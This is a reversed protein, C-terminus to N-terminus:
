GQRVFSRLAYRLLHSFTCISSSKNSKSVWRSWPSQNLLHAVAHFLSNGDRPLVPALNEDLAVVALCIKEWEEPDVDEPRLVDDAYGMM